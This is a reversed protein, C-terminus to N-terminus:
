QCGKVFIMCHMVNREKCLIEVFFKPKSNFNGLQNKVLKELGKLIADMWFSDFRLLGLLVVGVVVGEERIQEQRTGRRNVNKRWLYPLWHRKIEACQEYLVTPITPGQVANRLVVHTVVVLLIKMWVNRQKQVTLSKQLTRQLKSQVHFRYFNCNTHFKKASLYVVWKEQLTFIENLSSFTLDDWNEFTVVHSSKNGFITRM